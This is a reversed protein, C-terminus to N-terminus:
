HRWTKINMKLHLRTSFHLYFIIFMSHTSRKKTLLNGLSNQATAGQGNFLDLIASKLPCPWCFNSLHNIVSYLKENTYRLMGLSDDVIEAYTRRAVDLLGPFHFIHTHSCLQFNVLKFDNLLGLDNSFSLLPCGLFIYNGLLPITFLHDSLM